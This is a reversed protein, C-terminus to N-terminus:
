IHTHILNEKWNLVKPSLHIVRSLNEPAALFFFPAIATCKRCLCMVINSTWKATINYAHTKNWQFKAVYVYIETHLSRLAQLASYCIIRGECKKKKVWRKVVDDSQIVDAAIGRSILVDQFLAALNANLSSHSFFDVLIRTTYISNETDKLKKWRRQENGPRYVQTSCVYM